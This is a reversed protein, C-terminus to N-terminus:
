PQLSLTMRGRLAHLSAGYPPTGIRGTCGLSEGALIGAGVSPDIAFSLQNRTAAVPGPTLKDDALCTRLRTFWRALEASQAASFSRVTAAQTRTRVHSTVGCGALGVTACLVLATIIKALRIRRPASHASSASAILSGCGGRRPPGRISHLRSADIMRPPTAWPTALEM